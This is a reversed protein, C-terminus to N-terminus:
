EPLASPVHVVEAPKNVLWVHAAQANEGREISVKTGDKLMLSNGFPGAVCSSAHGALASPEIWKLGINECHKIFVERENGHKRMYPYLGGYQIGRAGIFIDFEGRRLLQCVDTLQGEYLVFGAVAEGSCLVNFLGDYDISLNYVM